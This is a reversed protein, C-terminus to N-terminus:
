PALHESFFEALRATAPGVYEPKYYMDYHGAGEVELFHKARSPSLDFLRRGAEYQGTPGRRGGVIVQLPQTLLEPVLSFADFGLLAGYSVFLLRNTSNPHRYESERYFTVAELLEPDTIGAAEAEVLSDPIWPDRRAAAGRAQATREAAVDLLTQRADPLLRRMAEGIDNAVVTGVAKFRRETLAAKIAYGGGACIGLLGIRADNVYSLTALHDVACHIDEVRVVPDELDRPEGGSEGQYSPDFTLAIFGKASLREAYIAGIQEKVSSGPTALVVAPYAGGEDCDTPLHINGVVEIGRNSFSVRKIM